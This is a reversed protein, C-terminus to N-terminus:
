RKGLLAINIKEDVLQALDKDGTIVFVEIEEDADNSFKTAFTAIVDDAEQGAKKINRFGIGM